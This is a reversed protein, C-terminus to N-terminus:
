PVLAGFEDWGGATIGDTMRVAGIYGATQPDTYYVIDGADYPARASGLTISTSAERATLQGNIWRLDTGNFYNTDSWVSKGASSYLGLTYTGEITNNMCTESQFVSLIALETTSSNSKIYNNTIHCDLGFIGFLSRTAAGSSQTGINYLVNGDIVGRLSTNGGTRSVFVGSGNVDTMRNNTVSVSDPEYSSSTGTTVYYVGGGRLYGLSDSTDGSSGIDRLVNGSITTSGFCNEFAFCTYSVGEFVNNTVEVNYAQIATVGLNFNICVNGTIIVRNAGKVNSIAGGIFDRLVNNSIVVGDDPKALDNTELSCFHGNNWSQVVNGDAVINKSGTVWSVAIMWHWSDGQTADHTGTNNNVICHHCGQFQVCSGTSQSVNVFIDEFHCNTVRIYDCEYAIIAAGKINRITLSDFSVNAVKKAVADDFAGLLFLSEINADPVRNGSGPVTSTGEITGNTIRMDGTSYITSSSYPDDVTCFVGNVNHNASIRITSGNLNLTQGTRMYIRSVTPTVLYVGNPFYVEKAGTALAANIATTSDTAGTPDAGYDMVSVSNDAQMRRFTKTLAM